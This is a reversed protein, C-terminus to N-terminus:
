KAHKDHEAYFEDLLYSTALVEDRIKQAVAKLESQEAHEDLLIDLMECQLSVRNLPKRLEHFLTALSTNIAPDASHQQPLSNDM